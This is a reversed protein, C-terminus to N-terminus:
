QQLLVILLLYVRTDFRSSCTGLSRPRGPQVERFEGGLGARIRAGPAFAGPGALLLRSTDGGSFIAGNCLVASATRSACGSPLPMAAVHM